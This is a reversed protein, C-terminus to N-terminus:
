LHKFDVIKGDIILRPRGYVKINLGDVVIWDRDSAVIVRSRDQQSKLIIDQSVTDEKIAHPVFNFNVLNLGTSNKLGIDNRDGCLKAYSIDPTM